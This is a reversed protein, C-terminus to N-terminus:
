IEHTALKLLEYNGYNIGPPPPRRRTKRFTLCKSVLILIFISLVSALYLYLLPFRAPVWLNSYVLDGSKSFVALGVGMEQVGMRYSCTPVVIESMNEAMEVTGDLNMHRTQIKVPTIDNKASFFEMKKEHNLSKRSGTFLSGRHDHASFIIDPNLDTMVREAFRGNLPLVPVHSIVVVTKKRTLHEIKSTINLSGHETLRSVPFVDLFSCPSYFLKNAGFNHRFRDLKKLTILDGGEGGVDNDGPTFIREATSLPPFVNFFRKAYDKYEDDTAESGEDLLDGLFVPTSHPYKYSMWSYVSKLYRDSDWRQITGLLGPPEGNYGQLQPDAYFLLSCTESPISAWSSYSFYYAFYENYAITGLLVLACLRNVNIFMRRGM